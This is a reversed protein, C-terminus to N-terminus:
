AILEAQSVREPQKETERRRPPVFCMMGFAVLMLLAALLFSDHMALLTSQLQLLEGTLGQTTLLMSYQQSRGQVLSSFVTVGLPAATAQLVNILTSGNAIEQLEEKKIRSM